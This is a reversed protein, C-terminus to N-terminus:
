HAGTGAGTGGGVPTYKHLCAKFVKEHMMVNISMRKKKSNEKTQKLYDFSVRQEFSLDKEFELTIQYESGVENDYAKKLLKIDAIKISGGPLKYGILRKFKNKSKGTGIRVRTSDSLTAMWGTYNNQEIATVYEEIFSGLRKMIGQGMGPAQEYFSVRGQVLVPDDITPAALSSFVFSLALLLKM